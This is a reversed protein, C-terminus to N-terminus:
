CRRKSHERGRLTGRYLRDIIVLPAIIRVAIVPMIIAVPAVTM